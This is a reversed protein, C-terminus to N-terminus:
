FWRKRKFFVIMGLASAIMIGWVMAYGFRWKLEPMAEFNMGYIGAIFTLPMFITAIVTLVRMVQNMRNSVITMYIDLTGSLMDRLSDLNDIIQITHGYVDRLYPALKADILKSEASQLNGVLERLPWLCKRLYVMERKLQHIETLTEPRAKATVADHLAEIRDGLAELVAFYNDVISDILSYALYDCGMNRIRGASSRIRERVRDFVDDEVEQFTIVYNPGLVLSVQEAVVGDDDEPRYLMKLAMFIYDGHDELKPRQGTNAIDEVVLPHLDFMDGIEQLLDTDHLGVVNIWTVTSKGAYAQCADASPLVEENLEEANYDIVSIQVQEVRQNGLYVVTGPPLGAVGSHKKLLSDM